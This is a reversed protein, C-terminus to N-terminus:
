TDAFILLLARVVLYTLLLLIATRYRYAWRALREGINERYASVSEGALGSAVDEAMAEISPYRDEPRDQLARSAIASVRRPPNSPQDDMFRQLIAGLAYVDSREDVEEIHGAAQEPSMYGPTGLITGPQTTNAVLEVTKPSPSTHFTSVESRRRRQRDDDASSDDDSSNSDTSSADGGFLLKAVGWDMVLVEGFSGVMINEPKLDRHIVGHAHAFAVAECIRELIRLFPRLEGTDGMVQDLRDGRVLKMTYYVRGDPLTGVDHIPVIGPHELQAVIRAERLMREKAAPHLQQSRLVKLAVRRQLDKDHARYVTGMGGQAIEEVIEYRTGSLDPLNSLKSHDALERLREMAGPGLPIAGPGLPIAGPGLPMAGPGLPIAQNDSAVKSDSQSNCGDTQPEEGDPQILDDGPSRPNGGSSTM